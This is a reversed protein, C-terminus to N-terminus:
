SDKCFAGGPAKTNSKQFREPGTCVLPTESNGGGGDGARGPPGRGVEDIGVIHTMGRKYFESEVEYLAEVRMRERSERELRRMYSAALDRVGKREDSLIEKLVEEPVDDKKLIERIESITM